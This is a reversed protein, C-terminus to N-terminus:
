LLFQEEHVDFASADVNSAAYVVARKMSEPGSAFLGIQSLETTTSPKHAQHVEALLANLDPRVGVRVHHQKLFDRVTLKEAVKVEPAVGFFADAKAVKDLKKRTKIDIFIVIFVAIGSGFLVLIEVLQQVPWLAANKIKIKGGGYQLAVLIGLSLTFVALYTLPRLYRMRLPEAVPMPLRRSKDIAYAAAGADYSAAFDVQVDLADDLVPKTLYFRSTFQREHPDLEKIKMLLPHIQEMLSLERFTFVFFVRQQWAEGHSLKAVIDELIALLPTVGIGGGVLCITSYEEYEELSAGYYADMYVTPLTNQKKCEEAYDVLDKTWNGLSKALITLTSANTRPSSAITFAHWQLKSISPVNLYVFQGVRFHGDRLTSRNVVIKIINNNLATFQRVTVPTWANFISMCRSIVYVMFPAFIWWIDGSYHLAIFIVAPIFLHHAYYFVEYFRRRVIPIATIGMLLFCLLALEGFINLWTRSGPAVGLPCDFCPLANKSWTGAHIWGWYEVICHAWASVVTVIALWRHYKIGNAYSINFFEMWACNRTAPFFLLAVGYISTYGLSTGIVDLYTDIEVTKNQALLTDRKKTFRRDYNYYFVLINGIIIVGGVFLWEGYCWYSLWSGVRPKRRLIMAVQLLYKSTIRRVNVCRLLEVLLLSAVVPVICFLFFFTPRVMESHGPTKQGKPVPTTPVGWWKGIRTKLTLNYVPANIGVQGFLYVGMAVVVLAQALSGVLRYRTSWTAADNRKSEVSRAAKVGSDSRSDDEDSPPTKVVAYGDSPGAM